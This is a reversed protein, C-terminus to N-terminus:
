FPDNCDLVEFVEYGWLKREAKAHAIARSVPAYNPSDTEINLLVEDGTRRHILTVIHLYVTPTEISRVDFREQLQAVM